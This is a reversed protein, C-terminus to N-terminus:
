VTRTTDAPAVVHDHMKTESAGTSKLVKQAELMQDHTGHAVVLMQGARVKKDYSEVRRQKVGRGSMGGILAGFVTGSLALGLAAAAQIAGSVSEGVSTFNAVSVFILGLVIGVGAGIAGGKMAGTSDQDTGSVLGHVEQKSELEHAILTVKERPFGRRVLAELGDKAQAMTSFVAVTSHDTM